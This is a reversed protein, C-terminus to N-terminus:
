LSINLNLFIYKFIIVFSINIMVKVANQTQPKFKKKRPSRIKFLNKCALMKCSKRNYTTAEYLYLSIYLLYCVSALFPGPKMNSTLPNSGMGGSIM